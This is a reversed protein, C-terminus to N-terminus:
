WVPAEDSDTMATAIGFTLTGVGLVPTSWRPHLARHWQTKIALPVILCVLTLTVTVVLVPALQDVRERREDNAADLGLKVAQVLDRTRIQEMLRTSASRTAPAGRPYAAAIAQTLNKEWEDRFLYYRARLLGEAEKPIDSREFRRAALAAEFSAFESAPREENMILVVGLWTAVVVGISGLFLLSRPWAGLRNAKGKSKM